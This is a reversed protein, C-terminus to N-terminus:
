GILGAVNVDASRVIVPVLAPAVIVLKVVTSLMVQDNFMPPIVEEPVIMTEMAVALTCSKAPMSLIPLVLM